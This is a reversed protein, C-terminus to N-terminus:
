FLCYLLGTTYWIWHESQSAACAPSVSLLRRLRAESCWRLEEGTPWWRLWRLCENEQSLPRWEGGPFENTGCPSASAMCMVLSLGMRFRSRPLGVRGAMYRSIMCDRSGIEVDCSKEQCRLLWRSVFAIPHDGFAEAKWKKSRTVNLESRM